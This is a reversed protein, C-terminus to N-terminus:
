IWEAWGFDCLTVGICSVALEADQEMIPRFARKEQEAIKGRAHLLGIIKAANSAVNKRDASPLEDLKKTLSSLDDGAAEVNNTGLYGKLVAVMLERSRDIVSEPGSKHIDLSLKEYTQVIKAKDGTPLTDVRLNPISGFSRVSRLTILEENTYIREFEVIVWLSYAASTGLIVVPPKLIPQKLNPGIQYPHFVALRRQFTAYGKARTIIETARAPHPYVICDRPTTDDRIYVRGRKIRSTPDFSDERFLYKVHSIHTAESPKAEESSSGFNIPILIPPPYIAHLWSSGEYVDAGDEDIGLMM